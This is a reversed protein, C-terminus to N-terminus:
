GMLIMRVNWWLDSQRSQIRGHLWPQSHILGYACGTSGQGRDLMRIM